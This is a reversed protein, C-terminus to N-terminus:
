GGASIISMGPMFSSLRRGIISSTDAMLSQNKDKCVFINNGSGGDTTKIVFQSPLKDFNIEEANDCVQYLENLYRDTRLRQKVVDRVLYKDTCPLM